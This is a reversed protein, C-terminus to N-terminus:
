KRKKRKKREEAQKKGTLIDHTNKLNKAVKLAPVGTMAEMSYGMAWLLDHYEKDGAFVKYATTGTRLHRNLVEFATSEGLGRNYKIAGGVDRVLPIGSVGYEVPSTLYEWWEPLEGSM